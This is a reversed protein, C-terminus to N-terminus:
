PLRFWDPCDLGIKSIMAIKVIKGIKGVKGIKVINGIKACVFRVIKACM